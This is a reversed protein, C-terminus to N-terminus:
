NQDLYATLQTVFSDVEAPNEKIYKAWHSLKKTDKPPNKMAAINEL